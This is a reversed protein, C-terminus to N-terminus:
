RKMDSVGLSQLQKGLRIDSFYRCKIRRNQNGATAISQVDRYIHNSMLNDAKKSYQLRQPERMSWRSSDKVLLTPVLQTIQTTCHAAAENNYNVSLM